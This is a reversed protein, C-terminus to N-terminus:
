KVSERGLKSIVEIQEAAELFFGPNTKLMDLLFRNAGSGSLHNFPTEDFSIRFEIM